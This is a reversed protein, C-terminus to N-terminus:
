GGEGGPRQRVLRQFAEGRQAYGSFMDFSSCAPSLLVVDGPASITGALDIAQELSDLLEVRTLTKLAAAMKYRAEGILLLAKVKERIPGALLGYDGGKDRGGAILVVPESISDLAAGVAGINTAKSDDIYKVGDIKAVLTMRHPLSKFQALSGAIAPRPCGAAQAALIAAAANELNPSQGMSTGTLDCQWDDEGARGSVLVKSGNIQAGRCGDPLNHGFYLVEGKLGSSLQRLQLIERDDHNIIAMDGARQGALLRMKTSAYDAFTAYRDLHDPSINLLIGIDPRFDEAADLQFSSVELVVWDAEQPGALYDTLPAGINGGVFVKRGGAQLLEGLLTTVTTKGNTGTIAVVPTKLYDRALALEGIVPIGQQDAERLVPLYHPVGPSILILDASGCFKSSHGGAEYVVGRRQLWSATAQDVPGAESLIVEAGLGQCFRIASLGSKGFGVVMVRMDPSIAFM